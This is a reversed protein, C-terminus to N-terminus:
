EEDVVMDALVDRLEETEADADNEELADYELLALGDPEALELEEVDKEGVRLTVRVRVGECAPM